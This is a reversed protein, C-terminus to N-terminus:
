HSFFRRLRRFTYVIKLQFPLFDLATAFLRSLVRELTHQQAKRFSLGVGSFHLTNNFNYLWLLANTPSSSAERESRYAPTTSQSCLSLLFSKHFVRSRSSIFSIYFFFYRFNGSFVIYSIYKIYRISIKQLTKSHQSMKESETKIPREVFACVRSHAATSINFLFIIHPLPLLHIKTKHTKWFLTLLLGVLSYFIFVFLSAM